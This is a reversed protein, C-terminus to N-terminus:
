YTKKGARLPVRLIFIETKRYCPYFEDKESNIAADANSPQQWKGKEKIVYWIDYDKKNGDQQLPRNSVFYLKSGDPSFAPELDNYVGSFSAVEPTTWKGNIKESYLIVSILGRAYQLTYFLEDGAPSIAM